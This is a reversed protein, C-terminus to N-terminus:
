YLLQPPIAMRRIRLGEFIWISQSFDDLRLSEVAAFGANALAPGDRSEYMGIRYLTASKPGAILERESTLPDIAHISNTLCCFFILKGGTTCEISYPDFDCSPNKGVTTVEGSKLDFQRIARYTTIYLLSQSQDTPSRFFTLKRPADFGCDAALGDYNFSPSMPAGAATWVKRTKTDIARIRQNACDTVYLIKGDSTCVGDLILNFRAQAGVGNEFGVPQAGAILWSGDYDTNLHISHEDFVFYHNKVTPHSRISRPLTWVPLIIMRFRGVPDIREKRLRNIWDLYARVSSESSSPEQTRTHIVQSEDSVRALDLETQVSALFLRM